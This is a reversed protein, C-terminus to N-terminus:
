RDLGFNETFKRWSLSFIVSSFISCTRRMVKAREFFRKAIARGKCERMFLSVDRNDEKPGGNRM